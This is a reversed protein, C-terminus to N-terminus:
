ASGDEVGGREPGAAPDPRSLDAMAWAMGGLCLWPSDTHGLEAALLYVAALGMFLRMRRSDMGADWATCYMGYLMLAACGFVAFVYNQMQPDGSWQQYHGVLDLLLFLCPILHLPFFPKKGQGRAQGALVLCLPTLLGLTLWVKDFSGPGQVQSTLLHLALAAAAAWHGWKAERSPRFCPTFDGSNGLKWTGLALMGLVALSLLALCIEKPHGPILLGKEDVALAYLLLRQVLAMGAGGWVLQPLYNPKWLMKM